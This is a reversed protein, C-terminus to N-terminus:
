KKFNSFVKFKPKEKNIKVKVSKKEDTIDYFIKWFQETWIIQKM